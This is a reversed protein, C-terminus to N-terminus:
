ELEKHFLKVSQLPKSSIFLQFRDINNVAITAKKVSFTFTINRGTKKKRASRTHNMGFAVIKILIKKRKKPQSNPPLFSPLSL